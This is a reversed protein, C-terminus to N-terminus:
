EFRWTSNATFGDPTQLAHTLHGPQKKSSQTHLWYFLAAPGLQISPNNQLLTQEWRFEEFAVSETESLPNYPQYKMEHKVLRALIKKSRSLAQSTKELVLFGASDALAQNQSPYLKKLLTQVLFNNQDAVAGVLATQIEDRKLAQYAMALAQYLQGSGPYTVFYPGQIGLNLSVHFIPMNPLCRFTLLPSVQALAVTSFREMSFQGQNLSHLALTEIYQREFPIYGVTLYIGANKLESNLGAQETALHAAKLALQDQKGMFKLMKRNTLAEALDITEELRTMEPTSIPSMGYFGIGTVAISDPFFADSRSDM